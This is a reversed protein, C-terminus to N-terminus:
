PQRLDFQRGCEPCTNRALRYRSKLRRRVGGVNAEPPHEAEVVQGCHPCVVAAVAM